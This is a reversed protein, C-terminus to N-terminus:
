YAGTRKWSANRATNKKRTLNHQQLLRCMTSQSVSIGTRQELKECIEKLTADNKEVLIQKITELHSTLKSVPGGAYPLAAITKHEREQKLLKQVFSRAVKFRKAVERVSGEQNKYTEVIKQRLDLSYAKM